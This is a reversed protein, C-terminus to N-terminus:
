SGPAHLLDRARAIAAPEGRMLVVGQAWSPFRKGQSPTLSRWIKQGLDAVVMDQISLEQTAELARVAQEAEHPSAYTGIVQQQM